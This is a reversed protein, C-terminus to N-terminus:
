KILVMSRIQVFDGAEIRYFYVGSSLHSADFQVSHKGVSKQEDVLTAVKQGLTNFIEIRVTGSKKLSYSITTTPNFPNPYNQALEYEFPQESENSVSLGSRQIHINFRQSIKEEQFFEIESVSTMDVLIGKEKDELKLQWDEPIDYQNEWNLVYLGSELIETRLTIVDQEEAVSRGEFVRTEGKLGLFSVQNARGDFSKMRLVDHIDTGSRASGSFILHAQNDLVEKEENKLEFRIFPSNQKSVAKGFHHPQTGTKQSQRFRLVPNEGTAQVFFGQIPAIYRGADGLGNASNYYKFGSSGGTSIGESDWVAYSTGLNTSNNVVDNWDITGAFPNGVMNYSLSDEAGRVLDLIVSDPESGTFELFSPLPSGGPADEFMYFLYGAGSTFTSDPGSYGSYNQNEADFMWLNSEGQSVTYDAWAGGQTHFSDSLTSFMENQVPSSIARWGSNVDNFRRSYTLNGSIVGGAKELWATNTTDSILKLMANSVDFIGNQLSLREYVELGSALKVTDSETNVTLTKLKQNGTKFRLSDSDSDWDLVSLSSSSDGSFGVGGSNHYVGGYLSLTRANLDLESASGKFTIGRILATEDLTVAHNLQARHLSSSPNVGGSWTSAESWNGSAITEFIIEPEAESILITFRQTTSHLSGEHSVSVTYTGSEANSIYVQEINDLDNDGTTAANTPNSKNLVWPQYSISSKSVLFDLDNVLLTDTPDNAETPSTGAPDTWAITIILPRNSTHEFEFSVTGGDSILTDILVVASADSNHASLFRVARETNLLGWGTKYDPGENGVDDATHALLARISASSLTDSNLNQYHERILAVSGAVVATAASTGGGTSYAADGSSTSTYVNTPAIIDPKIRGDDTPGFGSSSTPSVSNLDNFNGSSSEVAGVVLVNKALSAGNVSEFGLSGGDLERVTTSDEVCNLGSDYKWHKVPQSSPGEGRNNGAAKVILYDPALYAVSDWKQAQSDYYGFQYAKTTDESELSFWTWGSGCIGSNTTWGATEIYPHASMLLGNAAETAMESIDSNWNWAEVTAQNAMGRAESQVGTAIMTGVMQTAHSNNTGVESDEFTVRGTYEQHTLRPQNEDWYGILIGNGSLSLGAIGGSWIQDNNVAQAAGLNASEYILPIRFVAVKSKKSEGQAFQLLAEKNFTQASASKGGNLIFFVFLFYFLLNKSLM